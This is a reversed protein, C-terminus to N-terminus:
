RFVPYYKDSASIRPDTFREQCAQEQIVKPVRTEVGQGDLWKTGPSAVVHANEARDLVVFQFEILNVREIESLRHRREDRGSFVATSHTQLGEDFIRALDCAAAFAKQYFARAPKEDWQAFPKGHRIQDSSQRPLNDNDGGVTEARDVM